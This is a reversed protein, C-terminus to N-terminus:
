FIDSELNIWLAPRVCRGTSNVNSCNISGFSYVLAAENPYEGPSRLWWTAADQRESTKNRDNAEAGNMIAYATPSVRANMNESSGDTRIWFYHTAEAYSLLFIKDQTNNGGSTGWSSNGQSTTNDVLTMQIASQEATSFAQQFFEKNLWARLSCQEWTVANMEYHYPKEDLGYCSILLSKNGETALVKWEIPKKGGYADQPYIGFTVFKGVTRFAKLREQRAQAEKRKCEAEDMKKRNREAEEKAAILLNEDTKLLRDTEKYGQTQIFERYADTYMKRQLYLIAIQYRVELIDPKDPMIPPEKGARSSLEPIAKEASALDFETQRLQTELERRKIGTFLGRLNSLSNQLSNRRSQLGELKQQAEALEQKAKGLADAEAKVRKWANNEEEYKAWRAQAEERTEQILREHTAKKEAEQRKQEEEQRHKREAEERRKREEEEERRKRENEEQRRREAEERRRRVEEERCKREIEEERRREKEVRARHESVYGEIQVKLDGEAFRLARKFDTNDTPDQDIKALASRTPIRMEAMAKGLWANADRPFSKLFEDFFEAAEDFESDELLIFGLDLSANTPQPAPVSARVPVPAPAPAPAPTPEVAPPEPDPQKHSMVRKLIDEIDYLYGPDNLNMAQLYRVRFTEPLDTEPRINRYLPILLKEDGADIRDLFRRWESRVWPSEFYEKQSGLVLMVTSSEIAWFIAAEYNAGVAERLSIPAYFVNYGRQTLRAHIGQAIVSDATRNGNIDTEKYCLFVDYPSMQNRLRQIEKQIRDIYKADHEYEAREDVSLSNLVMRYDPEDLFSTTRHRRCTIVRKQSAKDEVYIVGYKCLLIGWRAKYDGTDALLALRYAKEAEAFEGMNRREAAYAHSQAVSLKEESQPREIWRPCYPCKMGDVDAPIQIPVGCNYCNIDFPKNM